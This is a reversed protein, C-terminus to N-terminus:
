EEFDEPNPQVRPPGQGNYKHVEGTPQVGLAACCELADEHTVYRIGCISCPYEGSLRGAKKAEAIMEDFMKDARHGPSKVLRARTQISDWTDVM